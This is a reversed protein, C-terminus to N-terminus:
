LPIGSFIGMSSIVIRLGGLSEGRTDEVDEVVGKASTALEAVRIDCSSSIPMAGMEILLCGFRGDMLGCIGTSSTLVASLSIRSSASEM